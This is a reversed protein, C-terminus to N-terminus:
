RDNQIMREQLTDSIIGIAANFCEALEEHESKQLGDTIMAIKEHKQAQIRLNDVVEQRTM